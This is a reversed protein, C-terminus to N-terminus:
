FNFPFEKFLRGRAEAQWRVGPSQEECESM